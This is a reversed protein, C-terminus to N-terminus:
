CVCRFAPTDRYLHNVAGGFLFKSNYLITLIPLICPTIARLAFAFDGLGAFSRHSVRGHDRNEVAFVRGEFVASAESLGTRRVKREGHNEGDFLQSIRRQSCALAVLM